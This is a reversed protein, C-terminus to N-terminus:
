NAEDAFRSYYKRMLLYHIIKSRKYEGQINMLIFLAINAAPNIVNYSPMGSLFLANIFNDYKKFYVTAILAGMGQGIIAYPLASFKNRIYLTNDHIDGIIRSVANDGFFGLDDARSINNGHGKIDTTVVVYDHASLFQAMSRYRGQHDAMDHIIQFVGEPTHDPMYLIANKSLEAM